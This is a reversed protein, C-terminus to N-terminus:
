NENNSEKLCEMKDKMEIPYEEPCLLVCHYENNNNDYYHYYICENFCNSYNNVSFTFKYNEKCTLCHHTINDGKKWMNWLFLLM